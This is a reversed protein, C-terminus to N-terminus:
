ECTIKGRFEGSSTDDDRFVGTLEGSGRLHRLDGTGTGDIVSWKAHIKGDPDEAVFMYYMFSGNGCRSVTGQFTEVNAVYEMGSSVAKWGYQYETTGQWDGRLITASGSSGTGRCITGPKFTRLDCPAVATVNDAPSEYRASIQHQMTCASVLLTPLVCTTGVLFRITSCTRM